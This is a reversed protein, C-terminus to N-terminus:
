WPRAPRPAAFRLDGTPPEAFPIGLFVAIGAADRGAADRGAPGRHGRVLGSATRVVPDTVDM